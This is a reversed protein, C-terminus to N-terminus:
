NNAILFSARTTEVVEDFSCPLEGKSLADFLVELEDLHGKDSVKSEHSLPIGFSKLEKYDDMVITTGDFHVEMFEKSISKHPTTIYEITAVSGDKYSISIVKNDSSQYYENNPCMSNVSITKIEAGVIFRVLDLIHCAEGIIRGGDEHVWHEPPQYGASMRYRIYLPNVRGVTACKVKNIYQSYRRNFGVMLIPKEDLNQYVNIVEDLQEASIALPKEVFVHKNSQLAKIILEAHNEHRTGIFVLDVEPDSLVTNIDTTSYKANYKKAVNEATLGTRNMIAHISFSNSLQQLNPLHRGQVFNGAGLIGVRIKDGAEKQFTSNDVTKSSLYGQVESTYKLLVMLPKESEQNLSAFAETSEEIPYTSTIMEDISVVGQLLLDLYSQMNRNETWRVYAYPYDLGKEEYSGDYRGPGYSTSIKFDIEKQYIDNRDIEKGAVGVLVVSGKKRTIKFTSALPSNSQTAATFVSVDVGYGGSWQIVKEEYGSDPTLTLEAGYKEALELRKKDFDIAVVRAGSAKLLQITILGLIGTGIVAVFEGLKIDARRVGQMAIGGLTVTSALKLNLGEDVKMVLNVPVSVYEAHNALKAGAAAVLDGIKYNTINSGVEIVEGSISYGTASESGVQKSVLDMTGKLGKEAVLSIAKKIHQPKEIVRKVLSKGSTTVASNETGASICSYRVKILVEDNGVTPAPIEKTLVQGKKIVVQKM